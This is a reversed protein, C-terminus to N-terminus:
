AENNRQLCTRWGSSRGFAVVYVVVKEGGDGEGDGM